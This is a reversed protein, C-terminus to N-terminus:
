YFQGAADPNALGDGVSGDGADFGPAAFGAEEVEQRLIGAILDM